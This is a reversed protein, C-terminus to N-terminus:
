RNKDDSLSREIQAIDVLDVDRALMKKYALLNERSIIPVQLGFIEMSVTQKFDTILLHWQRTQEDFIKTQHAGGLDIEQGNHNLTMLLIDWNEDRMREPGFIIFERVKEQLLPFKDEPIDIDIDNLERSAGYAIAALGGAIQFPIHLQYLIETIWQLSKMTDRM